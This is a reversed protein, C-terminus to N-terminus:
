KILQMKNLLRVDGSILEYLYIGSALHSADFRVQYNGAPMEESALIAVESGLMDYVKLSTFGSKKLSFLITTEPNFPNPFNQNLQYESPTGGLESIDSVASTTFRFYSSFDSAGLANIASVRWFHLTNAKLNKHRYPPNQTIVTDLVMTAPNFNLSYNVQVRYSTAVPRITWNFLSDIGVSTASNPPYILDVSAPFGTTFNRVESSASPGGANQAFVRWYYKTEGKLISLTITTDFIAGNDYVLTSFDASASVQLRYKSVPNVGNWKFIVSQPESGSNNVPANLQPAVPPSVSLVNSIVSENAVRDLSTVVYYYPGNINPPVTPVVSKSRYVGVINQPNNLDTPTVTSSIFRYLVYYSATDNDAAPTPANWMFEYLGSSPSKQYTLGSPANPIVNDLWTMVPPLAPYRYLDNKLSDKFGKPNNMIGDNVRFFVSGLTKPNSRNARIQRPMETANWAATVRYPAQGPYFHRQNRHVSDAWWPMLKLYDQNGGIPWYLQPTLYDIKRNQLWNIPDCFIDYYSSMGSIGPPYSSKWIGFPSIGFKVYPKVAKISDHIQAILMNVNNRRWDLINTFGNPYTQFTAADESGMGEYPYFYDDFHIGDVDYRRVVDMIVNTVFNRVAPIGPNLMRLGSRIFTWDPHQVAVHNSALTYSGVSREARYPNFWAHVEISRKHAEELVFQLPDFFPSPAVGQQGTLYYSWPEYSSQYLADCEPRVQFVVANINLARLSDLMTILADKKAQTSATPSPPWDLNVVTAIWASRFERKPGPTQAFLSVTFLLIFLPLLMPHKKM